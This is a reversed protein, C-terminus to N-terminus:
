TIKSEVIFKLEIAIKINQTSSRVLAMVGYRVMLPELNTNADCTIVLRDKVIKIKQIYRQGILDAIIEAEKYIIRELKKSLKYKPSKKQKVLKETKTLTEDTFKNQMHYYYWTFMSIIALGSIAKAALKKYNTGKVVVIM